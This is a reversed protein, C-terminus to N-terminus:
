RSQTQWSPGPAADQKPPAASHAPQSPAANLQGPMVIKGDAGSQPQFTAIVRTPKDGKPARSGREGPDVIYTGAALDIVLKVGKVKNKGQTLIVEKGTMTILQAKVEYIADDGTAEQHDRSNTMVVKGGMAHIRKIQGSAVPDSSASASATKVPKAARSVQANNEAAQPQNADAYFVELRPSKLNSAGQTASVNGIFIAKHAKDDVELRDSEIDIPKKSDTGSSIGSFGGTPTQAWGAPASLTLAVAFAGAAAGFVLEQRAAGIRERGFAM